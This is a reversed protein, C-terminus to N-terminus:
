LRESVSLMENQGFSKKAKAPDEVLLLPPLVLLPVMPM